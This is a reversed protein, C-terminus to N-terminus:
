KKCRNRVISLFDYKLGKFDDIIYDCLDKISERSNTTTLGITVAGTDKAAKLGNLSDEFIYTNDITSHLFQMGKLFCEPNPKSESYDEATLVIDFYNLFNRHQAYVNSMKVISSSTVVGIKIDNSKLDDIFCEIGPIYDYNMQEEYKIISERVIHNIRIDGFYTNLIVELTLGKIQQDLDPSDLYKRGIEKWFFSYQLETDIIVGDLDFLVVEKNM